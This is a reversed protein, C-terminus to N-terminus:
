LKTSNLYLKASTCAPPLDVPVVLDAAERVPAPERARPDAGCSEALAAPAPAPARAGAGLCAALGLLVALTRPPARMAGPPLASVPGPARQRAGHSNPTPRPASLTSPQPRRGWTRPAATGQEWHRGCGEKAAAELPRMQRQM